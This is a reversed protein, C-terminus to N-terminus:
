GWDFPKLEKSNLESHGICIADAVDDNVKIGYNQEVFEIDRTKLVERTARGQQIGCEKRWTTAGKFKVTEKHRNFMLFM